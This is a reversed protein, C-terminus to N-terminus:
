TINLIEITLECLVYEIKMVFVSWNISNRTVTKHFCSKPCFAFNKINLGKFGSNFGM